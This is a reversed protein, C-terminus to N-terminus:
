GVLRRILYALMDGIGQTQLGLQTLDATLPAFIVLRLPGLLGFITIFAFVGTIILVMFSRLDGGGARVLNKSICGGSFVMGVGFILGGAVNVAWGFNPTMYMSDAPNLIGAMQLLGVGLVAVAIALLWSRFRRYDGFSLIDSVLGMTCFNTRYVVFGFAVGILLGGWGVYFAASSGVIKWIEIVKAWGLM